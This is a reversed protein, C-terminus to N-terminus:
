VIAENLESNKGLFDAKFQHERLWDRSYHRHPTYQEVLRWFDQSHNKHRIHALEHILVYDVVQIPAVILKFNLSIKNDPSCSGWISKQGRFQVARPLLGMKQGYYRIRQGMIQEAVQRYSRKFAQFYQLRYEPTWDAEPIPSHFLIKQEAFRLHLRQSPLIRLEYDAGLYPYAEGTRFVKPPYKKRLESAQRLSQQLWDRNEELFKLIQRQSLTKNSSVKIRGSPHVTVGLRKQRARRRIEVQHGNFSIEEL